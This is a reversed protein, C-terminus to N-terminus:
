KLLDEDANKNNLVDPSTYKRPENSCSVQKEPINARKEHASNSLEPIEPVALTKKNAITKINQSSSNGQIRYNTAKIDRNLYSNTNANINFILEDIKNKCEL